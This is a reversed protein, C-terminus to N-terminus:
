LDLVICAVVCPSLLGYLDLVVPACLANLANEQVRNLQTDTHVYLAQSATPNHWRGIALSPRLDVAPVPNIRFTGM